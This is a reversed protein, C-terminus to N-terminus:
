YFQSTSLIMKNRVSVLLVILPSLTFTSVNSSIFLYNSSCRDTYIYVRYFDTKDALKHQQRIRGQLIINRFVGMRYINTLTPLSSFLLFLHISSFEIYKIIFWFSPRFYYYSIRSTCHLYVFMTTLSCYHGRFYLIGLEQQCSLCDM